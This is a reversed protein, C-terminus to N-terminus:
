QNKVANKKLDTRWLAYGKPSLHVGDVTFDRGLMGEHDCLQPWLDVVIAKGSAQETYATKLKKLISNVELSRTPTPLTLILIGDTNQILERLDLASQQVTTRGAIVAFADNVGCAIYIKKPHYDSVGRTVQAKVQYTLYGNGALNRTLFGAPGDIGPARWHGGGAMTSDGCFSTSGPIRALQYAIFLPPTRTHFVVVQFVM